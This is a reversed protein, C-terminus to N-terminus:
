KETETFSQQTKRVAEEWQERGQQMAKEFSEAAKKFSAISEHSATEVVELTQQYATLPARFLSLYGEAIKSDVHQKEAQQEWQKLMARANEAQDKLLTMTSEFVSQAYKLNREQTASITEALTQSVESFAEMPTENSDKSQKDTM